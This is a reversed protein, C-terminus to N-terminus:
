YVLSKTALTISQTGSSMNSYTGSTTTQGDTPLMQFAQVGASPNQPTYTTPLPLPYDIHQGVYPSAGIMVTSAGLANNDPSGAHLVGWCHSSTCHGIGQSPNPSYSWYITSGSTSAISTPISASLDTGTYDFTLYGTASDFTVNSVTFDSTAYIHPVFYFALLLISVVSCLKLLVQKSLIKKM